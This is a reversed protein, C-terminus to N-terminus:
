HNRVCQAAVVGHRWASRGTLTAPTWTSRRGLTLLWTREVDCSTAQLHHECLGIADFQACDVFGRVADVYNTCNVVLLKVLPTNKRFQKAEEATKEVSRTTQLIHAAVKARYEDSAKREEDSGDVEMAQEM